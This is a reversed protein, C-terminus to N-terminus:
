SGLLEDLLHLTQEDSQSLDALRADRSKRMSALSEEPKEGPLVIQRAVLVGGLILPIYLLDIPIAEGQRLQGVIFNRLARQEEIPWLRKKWHNELLGFSLAIALNTIHTYGFKMLLWTANDFPVESALLRQFAPIFLGDQLVEHSLFIELTQTLMKSLFIAEGLSLSMGVDTFRQQSENLMATFLVPRTLPPLIHLRRDHFEKVARVQLEIEEPKWLEVLTPALDIPDPEVGGQVSLNLTPRKETKSNYESGITPALELGVIDRIPIVPMRNGSKPPRTRQAKQTLKGQLNLRFIYNGAPVDAAFIPVRLENVEGPQIEFQIQPQSIQFGQTKKPTKPVELALTFNVPADVASQLTFQLTTAQGSHIAVPDLRAVYQIGDAEFRQSAEMFDALVDPYQVVM